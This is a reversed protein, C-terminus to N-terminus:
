KMLSRSWTKLGSDDRRRRVVIIVSLIIGGLAGVVYSANHAFADTIFGVHHSESIREALTGQIRIWGERAAWMGALGAAVASIANVGLLVLLPRFLSRATRRPWKGLRAASALLLGLGLGVWWTAIIGWGIGLLTPNTTDFVPPHGVTFYEVCVRVTVQDHLIGYVVALIISMAVIKASELM